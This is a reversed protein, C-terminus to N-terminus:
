YHSIVIEDAALKAVDPGHGNRGVHEWVTLALQQIYYPHSRTIKLIEASIPAAEEVFGTFRYELYLLFKERPIIGLTYLTGFRYFPSEKKEFIERIKSENSGLICLKHEQSGTHQLATDQGSRM